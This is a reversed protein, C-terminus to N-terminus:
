AGSDRVHRVALELPHQAGALDADVATAGLGAVPELRDLQNAHRRERLSGGGPWRSRGRARRGGVLDLIEFRTDQMAVVLTQDDVLRGSQRHLAARLGRAMEVAHQVRQAEAALPRPQHM